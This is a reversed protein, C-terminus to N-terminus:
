EALEFHVLDNFTQDKVDQDRDWDGGWRIKIGMQSAVGMVYGGFYTCQRNDWSLGQGKIYPGVDVAQSPMSNHKGQPYKLKSRGEAYAADQEQQGRHGCIVTCDYAKVVERFLRQLDPHCTALREQSKPSFQPM